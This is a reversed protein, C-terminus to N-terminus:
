RPGGLVVVVHFFGTDGSVANVKIFADPKCPLTGTCITGKKTGAPIHVESKPAPLAGWPAICTM